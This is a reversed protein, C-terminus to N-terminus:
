PPALVITLMATTGAILEMPADGEVMLAPPKVTIEAVSPISTGGPYLAVTCSMLLLGAASGTGADKVTGAPVM